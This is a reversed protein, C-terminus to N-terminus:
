SMQMRIVALHIPVLIVVCAWDGYHSKNAFSTNGKITKTGASLSRLRSLSFLLTPSQRLSTTSVHVYADIHETM